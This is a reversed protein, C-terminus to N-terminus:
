KQEPLNLGLKELRLRNIERYEEWAKRHGIRSLVILVGLGALALLVIVLIVSLLITM